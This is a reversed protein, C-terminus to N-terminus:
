RSGTGRAVEFRCADLLWAPSGGPGSAAEEVVERWIRAYRTCPATGECFHWWWSYQPKLVDRIARLKARAERDSKVSVEVELCVLSKVGQEDVKRMILDPRIAAPVRRLERDAKM